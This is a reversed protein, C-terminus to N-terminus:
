FSNLHNNYVELEFKRLVYIIGEEPDNLIYKKTENWWCDFLEIFNERMTEQYKPHDYLEWAALACWGIVPISKGVIIKGGKLTKVLVGSGAKTGISKGTTSVVQNKAAKAMKFSMKPLIKTTSLIVGGTVVAKVKISNRNNNFTFKGLKELYNNWQEDTLNHNNKIHFSGSRIQNQFIHFTEKRIRQIERTTEDPLIITSKIKEIMVDDSSTIYERILPLRMVINRGFNAYKNSRSLYWDFFKHEIRYDFLQKLRNLEREAYGYSFVRADSVLKIFEDSIVKWDPEPEPELEQPKETVIITGSLKNIENNRNLFELFIIKLDTSLYILEQKFFELEDSFIIITFLSVLVVLIKTITFFCRKPPKKNEIKRM